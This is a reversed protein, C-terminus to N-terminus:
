ISSYHSAKCYLHLQLIHAEWQSMQVLLPSPPLASHLLRPSHSHSHHRLHCCYHPHPHHPRHLASSDAALLLILHLALRCLRSWRLNRLQMPGLPPFIMQPKVFPSFSSLFCFLLVRNVSLSYHPNSDLILLISKHIISADNSTISPHPTRTDITTSIDDFSTRNSQPMRVWALSGPHLASKTSAQLDQRAQLIPDRLCLGPSTQRVPYRNNTERNLYSPILVSFQSNSKKKIPLSPCDHAM